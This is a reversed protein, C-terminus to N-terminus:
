PLKVVTGRLAVGGVFSGAGCEYQTRSSFKSKRYVSHIGIVANGGEKVAREQLALVASLFARECGEQDSKNLFNTKKNSTFTGLTTKPAAHAADGFFLRVQPDMKEKADATALADKLSLKLRDDRAEVSAAFCTLVTLLVLPLTKM